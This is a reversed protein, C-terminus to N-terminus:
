TRQRGSINFPEYIDPLLSCDDIQFTSNLLKAFNELYIAVNCVFDDLAMYLTSHRHFVVVIPEVHM